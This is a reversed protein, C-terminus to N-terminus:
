FEYGVQARMGAGGSPTVSVAGNVLWKGNPTRYTAGVGLASYGKYNGVGAAMVVKGPASPMLNPMAMAAAVGGFAARQLSRMSAGMDNRLQSMQTMNVADTGNVGPAVNTVRRENGDSGVSVTNAQGAVSNAGLAVSNDGSAQSNVGIAVADTGTAVPKSGSAASSHVAVFDLGAAQYGAVVSETATVRENTANLQAGNIADTSTASVESASVNTVQVPGTPASPDGLTVKDRADTDYAVTNSGNTGNPGSSQAALLSAIDTSNQTVRGDLNGLATGVDRIPAGAIMFTPTSLRGNADISAGGGLADAISSTSDFLQSGNVANTSGEFLPMAKVNSIVTGDTGRLVISDATTDTYAVFSSTIRGDPDISFGAAHLQAVNVADTEETGAKVNVIQREANPKGFSVTNERDAISNSGIATSKSASAKASTGIATALQGSATASAGISIAAAGSASARNGLAIASNGDSTALYGIALGNGSANAQFGLAVGSAMSTALSGVAVALEGASSGVGVAVGLTGATASDSQTRGIASIYGASAGGGFATPTATAQLLGLNQTAGLLRSGTAAPTNGASTASVTEPVDADALTIGQKVQRDNEESESM